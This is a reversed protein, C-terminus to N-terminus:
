HIKAKIQANIQLGHNTLSCDILLIFNIVFLHKVMRTSTFLKAETFM